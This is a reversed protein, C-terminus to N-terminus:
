IYPTAVKGLATGNQLSTVKYQVDKVDDLEPCPCFPYPGPPSPYTARSSYKSNPSLNHLIYVFLNQNRPAGLYPTYYIDASGTISAMGPQINGSTVVQYDCGPGTPSAEHENHYGSSYHAPPSMYDSTFSIVGGVTWTATSGNANVGACTTYGSPNPDATTYDTSYSKAPGSLVLCLPTAAALATFLGPRKM